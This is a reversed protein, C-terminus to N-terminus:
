KAMARLYVEEFPLDNIIPIPALAQQAKEVTARDEASARKSLTVLVERVSQGKLKDVDLTKEAIRILEPVMLALDTISSAGNGSDTQAMKLLGNGETGTVKNLMQQGVALMPQPVNKVVEGLGDAMTVMKLLQSAAVPDGILKINMSALANGLAQARAVEIQVQADLQLRTIEVRQAVGDYAALAEAKAKQSEAEALGMAKVAEAERM